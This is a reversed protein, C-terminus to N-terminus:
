QVKAAAQRIDKTQKSSCVNYRHKSLLGTGHCYGCPQAGKDFWGQCETCVSYMKADSITSYARELNAIATQGIWAYLSDGSKYAKEIESKMESIQTLYKQVEDRREWFPAAPAPVKWGTHDLSVPPKQIEAAAKAVAPATVTEGKSTIARVVKARAKQPVKALERAAAETPVDTGMNAPLSKITDWAAALQDFRRKTWKQGECYESWSKAAFRWLKKEKFKSVAPAVLEIGGEMMKLGQNIQETLQKADHADIRDTISLENM